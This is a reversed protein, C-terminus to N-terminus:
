QNPPTGPRRATRPRRRRTAPRATPEGATASEDLNSRRTLRDPKFFRRFVRLIGADVECCM